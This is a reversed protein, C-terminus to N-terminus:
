GLEILTDRIREASKGDWLPIAQGTKGRGALVDEVAALIASRETGAMTNSGLEVTVYRETNQRLTICPIHLWSTEEQIGGSDTLVLRSCSYLSLFDLYSLPECLTIGPMEKLTQLLGHGEINKRTRPHIPFVIPMKKQIIDLTGLLDALIEPDDVNSPRHLTLVAYEGRTVGLREPVDLKRAPDVMRALTDIMTNGVLRIKEEPIGEARLNDDAEQCTTLLLDSLVDTVLRNIEEPMSRDRSRLGAEVHAIRIGLKAAVMSCAATSNVDGVVLVWDPKEDLCVQEFRKMIEATQVAHSGSGVELNIDPKPIGLEDFFSQSMRHDYHQGTHVLVFQLSSGEFARAIPAIKMFNPRAGVVGIVKM